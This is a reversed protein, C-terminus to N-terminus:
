ATRTGTPAHHREGPQDTYELVRVRDNEYVVQYHEPNTTVPDQSM